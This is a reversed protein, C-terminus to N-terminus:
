IRIEGFDGSAREEGPKVPIGALFRATDFLRQDTDGFEEALLDLGPAPGERLRLPGTPINSPVAFPLQLQLPADPHLERWLGLLVESMAALKLARPKVTILFVSQM